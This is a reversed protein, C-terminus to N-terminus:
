RRGASRAIRAALAVQDGFDILDLREKEAVYAAVLYLLESRARASTVIDRTEAVSKSLAEIASIVQNDHARLEAPDVLHEALEGALAIVLRM